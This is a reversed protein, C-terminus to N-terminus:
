RTTVNRAGAFEPGLMGQLLEVLSPDDGVYLVIVRGKKYYHPLALWDSHVTKSRDGDLPVTINYGDPSVYRAESDAAREDPFEYVQVTGGDFAVGRAGVSFSTLEDLDAGASGLDNILSKYDYVSTPTATPASTEGGCAALLVLVLVLGTAVRMHERKNIAAAM